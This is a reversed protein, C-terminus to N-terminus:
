QGAAFFDAMPAVHAAENLPPLGWADEITRLLSYHDYAVSSRYSPKGLPSIVLTVVQGGGADDCCAGDSKGEDFTVFLAGDDRWASSALIRPAWSKMWADADALSGDHADDQMNPTIWIYNPLKNANLDAAFQGFPVIKACRAPDNRVGNYYIFPNHKQRYLPAADGVFCASPMDEMYAKWSKGATELQDVVNAQGVRCDTCDDTIGFTNGGTLALYNPLSPHTIAFYNTALGYQKALSNLYPAEASGIVRDFEKNELVIIFVHKFNPVHAVSGPFPRAAAPSPTIDANAPGCSALLLALVLTCWRNM